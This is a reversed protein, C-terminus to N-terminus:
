SRRNTKSVLTGFFSALPCITKYLIFKYANQTMCLNEIYNKEWSEFNSNMVITIPKQRNKM